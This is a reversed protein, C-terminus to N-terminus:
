AVVLHDPPHHGAIGRDLPGPGDHGAVLDADCLAEELRAALDAAAPREGNEIVGATVGHIPMLHDELMEGPDRPSHPIVGSVGPATGPCIMASRCTCGRSISRNMNLAAVQSVWRM